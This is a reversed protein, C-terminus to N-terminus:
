VILYSSEQEVLASRGATTLASEFESYSMENDGIQITEIRGIWRHNNGDKITISDDSGKVSIVWDDGSNDLLLDGLKLDKLVLKDNLGGADDIIDKGDGAHYIYTDSGIGGKLLDDGKNGILTDKFWSGTLTDSGSNGAITGGHWPANLTLPTATVDIVFETAQSLGAADTATVKINLDEAGIPVNGSLTGTQNNYSLWSPLAKGDAQTVVYNLTSGEPDVFTSPAITHTLHNGEEVTVDSLAQSLTPAQNKAISLVFPVSTNGGNSDTATLQLSLAGSVSLPPTGSLQGRSTDYSLWSPLPSGDSQTLQYTMADADPDVFITEPVILQEFAVAQILSQDAISQKVEPAKNVTFTTYDDSTLGVTDTATVKINLVQGVAPATGTLKGTTADFSLWSPLASGDALTVSFTLTQNEPDSFNSLNLVQTFDTSENVTMAAFGASLVPALNDVVTLTLTATASLTAPDTATIVVQLDSSGVPPTGSLKGTAADITLWAPLASGDALSASFQLTDGDADSFHSGTNVTLAVAETVTVTDLQGDFIPAQSPKGGNALHEIYGKQWDSGDDFRIHDVRHDKSIGNDTVAATFYDKLVISDDTQEAFSIRLNDGDRSLQTQETTYGSIHLTDNATTKDIFDYVDAQGGKNYYITDNGGLPTIADDFATAYILDDGETVRIIKNLIEARDWTRTGGFDVTKIHHTNEDLFNQLRISEGTEHLVLIADDGSQRVTVKFPNIGGILLTDNDNTHADSQDIIDNGDGRNFHYRDNGIGGKLLDSGKGGSLYDDGSGGMLTDAGTGGYLKNDDAGGNLTDAGDGGYLTDSGDDGNLTDSGNNGWIVDNGSLGSIVDDTAYGYLKDDQETAQIAM